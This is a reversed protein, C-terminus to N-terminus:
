EKAAHDALWQAIAQSEEATFGRAIRDMVTAERTGERYAALAAAIEEASRGGLPMAAEAGLAHCGTCSLAGSPAEQAPASTALGALAIAFARM